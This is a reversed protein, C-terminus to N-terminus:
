PGCAAGNLGDAIIFPRIERIAWHAALAGEPQDHPKGPENM